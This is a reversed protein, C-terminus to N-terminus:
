ELSSPTVLLCGTNASMTAATSKITQGSRLYRCGKQSVWWQHLSGQEEGLATLAKERDVLSQHTSVYAMAKQADRRARWLKILTTGHQSLTQDMDPFRVHGSMDIDLYDSSEVENNDSQEEPPAIVWAGHKKRCDLEYAAIQVPTERTSFERRDRNFARSIRVLSRVHAPATSLNITPRRLKEFEGPYERVLTLYRLLKDYSSQANVDDESSVRVTSKLERTIKERTFKKRGSPWQSAMVTDNATSMMVDRAPITVEALKCAKTCQFDGTNDDIRRTHRTENDYSGYINDNTTCECSRSKGDNAGETSVQRNLGAATAIALVHEDFAATDNLNIRNVLCARRPSAKMQSKMIHRAKRCYRGTKEDFSSLGGTHRTAALNTLRNGDNSQRRINPLGTDVGPCGADEFRKVWEADLRLKRERFMDILSASSRRQLIATQPTNKAINASTPRLAGMDSAKRWHVRRVRESAVSPIPTDSRTSASTVTRSSAEGSVSTDDDYLEKLNIDIKLFSKTVDRM